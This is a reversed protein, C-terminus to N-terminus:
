STIGGWSRKLWIGDLYLYPFEGEIPRNRWAEITAAIKQNL